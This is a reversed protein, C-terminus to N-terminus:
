RMDGIMGLLTCPLWANWRDLWTEPAAVSVDAPPAGASAGSPLAADDLVAFPASSPRSPTSASSCPPFLLLSDIEAGGGAVGIIRVFDMVEAEDDETADDDLRLCEANSSMLEM